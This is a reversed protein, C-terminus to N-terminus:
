GCRDRCRKKRTGSPVAFAERPIPTIIAWYWAAALAHTGIRRWAQVHRISSSLEAANLLRCQRRCPDVHCSGTCGAAPWVSGRRATRRRAQHNSRAAGKIIAVNMALKSHSPCPPTSLAPPPALRPQLTAIPDRGPPPMNRGHRPSRSFDRMERPLNGVICTRVRNAIRRGLHDGACGIQYRHGLRSWRM